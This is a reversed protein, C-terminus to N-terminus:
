NTTDRSIEIWDSLGADWMLCINDRIGLVATAGGALQTNCNDAISVTNADVTGFIYVIQGDFAGDVIAPATDLLADTDAGVMRMVARTVTIAGDDAVSTGAATTTNPSYGIPLIFRLGGSQTHTIDWTALTPTANPTLSLGFHEATTASADADADSSINLTWDDQDEPTPNGIRWSSNDFYWANAVYTLVGNGSSVGYLLQSSVGVIATSGFRGYSSTNLTGTIDLTYAPNKNFIGVYLDIPSMYIADTGALNMIKSAKLGGNATVNGTGPTVEYIALSTITMTSAAAGSFIIKATTNATIRDTFTTATLTRGASGGLTYTPATGGIASVTMVVEYQRGATVTFTGSPTATGTGTGAIKVLTATGASWGDTCTWGAAELAPAMQASFTGNVTLNAGASTSGITVDSATTVAGIKSVNFMSVDANNRFNLFNTWSGGSTASNIYIGNTVDYTPHENYIWLGHFNNINAVSTAFYPAMWIRAGGFATGSEPQVADGGPYGARASIDAGFSSRATSGPADANANIYTRFYGGRLTISEDASSSSGVGEIGQLVANSNDGKSWNIRGYLAAIGDSSATQAANIDARFDWYRTPDSATATETYDANIKGSLTFGLAPSALELLYGGMGVYHRGNYIYQDQTTKRVRSTDTVTIWKPIHVAGATAALVLAILVIWRKM